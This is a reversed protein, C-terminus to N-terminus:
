EATAKLSDARRHEIASRLQVHDDFYFLKQLLDHLQECKVLNLARISRNEQLIAQIHEWTVWSCWSLDLYQLRGCNRAISIIAEMSSCNKKTFYPQIPYCILSAYDETEVIYLDSTVTKGSLSLWQLNTAM